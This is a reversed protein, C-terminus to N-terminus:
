ITEEFFRSEYGSGCLLDFVTTLKEEFDPQYAKYDGYFYQEHIMVRLAERSLLPSLTPEISELRVTNIIMDISAFAMGDLTVTRGRRIDTAVADSIGYSSRPREEDGFLGLLGRVGCDALARLGESTTRCYHVTTTDALSEPSAIRLIEGHVTACDRAVEAYDSHEYPCVNEELSHFSLRLWDACERWESAYRDSAASLDFGPMRYFMNLQIKLGYREHLRRLLATYPHDFLSASGCETLEKLFRINDDITFCFTKM